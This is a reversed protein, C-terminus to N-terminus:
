NDPFSIIRPDILCKLGGTSPPAFDRWSETFPEYTAALMMGGGVAVVHDLDAARPLVIELVDREVDGLAPEGHEGADGSRALRRQDEAGDGGLGLAQDVLGVRAKTCDNMGFRLRGSTSESRLRLAAITTSWSRIPALEREVTPVAVSAYAMSRITKLRSPSGCKPAGPANLKLVASPMHGSRRPGRGPRRCRCPRAPPGDLAREVLAGDRARVESDVGPVPLDDGLEPRNSGSTLSWSKVGCCHSSRRCLGAVLILTPLLLQM